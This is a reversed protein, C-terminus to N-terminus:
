YLWSACVFCTTRPVCQHKCMYNWGKCMYIYVATAHRISEGEMMSEQLKLTVLNCLPQVSQKKHMTLSGTLPFWLVSIGTYSMSFSGGSILLGTHWFSVWLALAISVEEM